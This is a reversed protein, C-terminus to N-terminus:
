PSVEGNRIAAEAEGWEDEGTPLLDIRYCETAARYTADTADTNSGDTLDPGFNSWPVSENCAGISCVIAVKEMFPLADLDEVDDATREVLTPAFLHEYVYRDGKAQVLAHRVLRPHARLVEPDGHRTM